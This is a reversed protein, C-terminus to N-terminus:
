FICKFEGSEHYVERYGEVDAYHVCTVRYYEGEEVGSFYGSVICGSTNYAEDGSSTAVTSWIGFLGKKQIEIDKAGIVSATGSVSTDITISMGYSQNYSIEIEMTTFSTAYPSIGSNNNYGQAQMEFVIPQTTETGAAKADVSPCSLLIAVILLMSSLKKIM